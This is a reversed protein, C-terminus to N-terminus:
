FLPLLSVNSEALYGLLCTLVSKLGLEVREDVLCAANEVEALLLALDSLVFCVAFHGILCATGLATCQCNRGLVAAAQDVAQVHCYSLSVHSMCIVIIRVFKRPQMYCSAVPVYLYKWGSM